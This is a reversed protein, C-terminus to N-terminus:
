ERLKTKISDHLVIARFFERKDLVAVSLWEIIRANVGAKRSQLGIRRFLLQESLRQPIEMGSIFSQALLASM